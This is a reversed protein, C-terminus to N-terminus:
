QKPAWKVTVSKAPVSQRKSPTTTPMGAGKDTGAISPLRVEDNGDQKSGPQRSPVAEANSLEFPRIPSPPPFSGFKPAGSPTVTFGTADSWSHVSDMPEMASPIQQQHPRQTPKNAASLRRGPRQKNVSGQQFTFPADTPPKIPTQTLSSELLPKVSLLTESAQRDLEQQGEGTEDTMQGSNYGVEGRIVEEIVHSAERAEHPRVTDTYYPVRAPFRSSTMNLQNSRDPPTGPVAGADGGYRATAHEYPVDIRKYGSVRVGAGERGKPREVTIGGQM